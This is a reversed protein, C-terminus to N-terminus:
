SYLEEVIEAIQGRLLGYNALQNEFEELPFVEFSSTLEICHKLLNLRCPNEWLKAFEVGEEFEAFGGVPYRDNGSFYPWSQACAAVLQCSYLFRHNDCIGNSSFRENPNLLRVFEAHIESLTMVAAGSYAPVQHIQQLNM